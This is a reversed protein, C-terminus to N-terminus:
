ASTRNLAPRAHVPARRLAWQSWFAWLVIALAIFVVQWVEVHMLDFLRPWHVGIFYLSVIRALNVALLGAVGAALGCWKRRWGAAPFGLVAAAFLVVPELGDCGRRVDVSFVASSITTDAVSTDQGLLRLVANAAAVTGRLYVRFAPTFGPALTLAYFLALLGAFGAVFQFVLHKGAWWAAVRRLLNFSPRPGSSAPPPLPRPPRKRKM